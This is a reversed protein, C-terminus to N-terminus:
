PPILRQPRTDTSVIAASVKANTISGISIDLAREPATTAMLWVNEQYTGKRPGRLPVGCVFTLRRSKSSHKGHCYILWIHSPFKIPFRLLPQHVHIGVANLHRGFPGECERLPLTQCGQVRDQLFIKGLWNQM